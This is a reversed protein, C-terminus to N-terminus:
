KLEIENIPEERLSMEIIRDVKVQLADAIMLATKITFNQFKGTCIKSIRDRGIRHGTNTHIIRILDGQSLKRRRLLKEIKTRQIKPKEIQEIGNNEPKEEKPKKLKEKEKNM